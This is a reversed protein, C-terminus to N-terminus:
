LQMALESESRVLHNWLSSNTDLNESIILYLVLLPGDEIEEEEASTRFLQTGITNEGTFGHEQLAKEVQPLYEEAPLAGQFNKSLASQVDNPTTQVASAKIARRSSSGKRDRSGQHINAPSSTKCAGFHTARPVAVFM